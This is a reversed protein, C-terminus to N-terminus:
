NIEHALLPASPQSPNGGLIEIERQIDAPPGARGRIFISSGLTYLRSIDRDCRRGAAGNPFSYINLVARSDEPRHLEAEFSCLRLNFAALTSIELQQSQVIPARRIIDNRDPTWDLTQVAKRGIIIFPLNINM